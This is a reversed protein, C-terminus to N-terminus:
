YDSDVVEVKTVKATQYETLEDDITWGVFVNVMKGSELEEKYGLLKNLVKDLVLNAGEVGDRLYYYDMQTTGNHWKGNLATRLVQIGKQETLVNSYFAKGKKM